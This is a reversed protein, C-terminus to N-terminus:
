SLSYFSLSSFCFLQENQPFLAQLNPSFSPRSIKQWAGGYATILSNLLKIENESWKNGEWRELWLAVDENNSTKFPLWIIELGKTTAALQSYTDGAQKLTTSVDWDKKEPILQKWQEHLVSRKEIKSVGSIGLVKASQGKRQWLVARDYKTLLITRNLIRFILEDKNKALISELTLLYLTSILKIDVTSSPNNAKSM